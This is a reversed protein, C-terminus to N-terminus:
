PAGSWDLRYFRHALLIYWVWLILGSAASVMIGVVPIYLGFGVINGIIGLYGPGKGFARSRLMPVSVIIGAISGIIYSAHFATGQYTALMARGAALVETREAHSAAAHQNSLELMQVATNSALFLGVGLLGLTTGVAMWSAGHRRLGMLLALFIPVLLVYIVMLLLDMSLLGLLASNQFLAFWEEVSGELPPPWVIFVAVALPTLLASIFTAVGAIRYLPAGIATM